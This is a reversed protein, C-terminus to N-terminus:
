TKVLNLSELMNGKWGHGDTSSLLIVTYPNTANSKLM